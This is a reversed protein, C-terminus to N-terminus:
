SAALCSRATGEFEERGCHFHMRLQEVAASHIQSVRAEGLGLVAAIEKMTMDQVYYMQLVRQDREQLQAVAASLRAAREGRMTRDLPGDEASSELTDIPEDSSDDTMMGHLSGIELGNLASVLEQYSALTMGLEVAVEGQQPHRGLRQTLKQKAAEMKRAKQRLGRSGWDLLRLSDLIAGRIRFQAYTRFQVDKKGDFKTFADILGVVGASVLDELEVHQPLRAHIRRAVCEVVPMNELLIQERTM